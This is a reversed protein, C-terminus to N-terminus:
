RVARRARWPGPEGESDTSWRALWGSMRLKKRTAASSMYRVKGFIKREPGWARDYGGLVWQINSWSSPDRGDIAFRDNLEILLELADRPHATWELLRKGWVMRLYNQIRGTALLERQAANWIPDGTEARALRDRDYIVPRPDSAHADLTTRAWAPLGEWSMAAEPELFSRVQGLERWTVLEDLFADAEPSANWWGEKSGHPKAAIKATTWGTREAIAALVQHPSIHGFHLSASLASSGRVDPHSRDLYRALGADRSPTLFEALRARAADSGGREPVARVAHDIPISALIRSADDLDAVPWRANIAPPLAPLRPLDAVDALPAPSPLADLHTPLTKQLFRRFTRALGFPKPAARLPLLGVGDIAEVRIAVQSAAARAMGAIWPIAVLDTVILAAHEALAAILGRGEGPAREIWPFYAIPTPSLARAQDRMGEIVFAHIRESAFPHDCRLPELVVIPLALERAWAISRDLAFSSRARRAAIMWHLVFSRERRVPADNLAIVRIAPVAVSAV